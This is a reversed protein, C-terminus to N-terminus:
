WVKFLEEGGIKMEKASKGTMVGQPTSVVSIGYGQKVPIIDRYGTYVRKSQKSVRSVDSIAPAGDEYKLEVELRKTKGEGSEKYDAIYNEKKLVELISLNMKTFPTSFVAHEATYANKLGNILNSIKDGVM